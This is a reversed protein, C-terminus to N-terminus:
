AASAPWTPALSELAPACGLFQRVKGLLIARDFPKVVFDAAGARLSNIVNDKDSKGTIMVIPVSGLGPMSRIRRTVEVGDLDPLMLDMLILDPHARKLM